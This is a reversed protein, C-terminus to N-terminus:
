KKTHIIMQPSPRGASKSHIKFLDGAIITCELLSVFVSLDAIIVSEIDDSVEINGVNWHLWSRCQHKEKSPADPDVM